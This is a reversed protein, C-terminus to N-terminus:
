HHHHLPKLMKGYALERNEENLINKAETHCVLNRNLCLVTDAERAIAELEHTIFVITMKMEENLTQILRYFQEQSVADVGVTPEDLILIEPESALARAIYVRQKQGGSLQAFPSDFLSELGVKQLMSRALETDKNRLRKLIGAHAIRGCKVVEGVTVPFSFETSAARQSVFGIKSKERFQQLPTGFFEVEGKFPAYLGVLISVLTTKGGGNPGVIGVYEGKSISFNIDELIPHGEISFYLNKVQIIPTDM